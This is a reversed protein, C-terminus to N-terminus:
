PRIRIKPQNTVRRAHPEIELLNPAGAGKSSYAPAAYPRDNVYQDVLGDSAGKGRVLGVPDVDLVLMAEWRAETAEPYFVVTKGFGLETEHVREPHKHLLFGLDTAPQLATAISLFM